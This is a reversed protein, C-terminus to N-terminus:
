NNNGFNNVNFQANLNNLNGGTYGGVYSAKRVHGVGGGSGFGNFSTQNFANANSHYEAGSFSDAARAHQGGNSNGRNQRQKRLKAQAITKSISTNGGGANSQGFVGAGNGFFQQTTM